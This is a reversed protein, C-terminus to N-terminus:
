PLDKLLEQINTKLVPLDNKVTKWVEFYDIGLYNHSIINRMGILLKYPIQHFQLKIDEPIYKAAEGIVEFNRIVADLTKEDALFEELTLNNTYKEIKNISSLIDNFFFKFDRNKM